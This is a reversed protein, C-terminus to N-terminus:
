TSFGGRVGGQAGGRPVAFFFDLGRIVGKPGIKEIHFEVHIKLSINTVGQSWFAGLIPGRVLLFAGWDM